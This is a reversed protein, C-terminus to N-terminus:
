RWTARTASATASSCRRSRGSGRCRRCSATGSSPQPGIWDRGDQGTTWPWAAHTIWCSRSSRATIRRRGRECSQVSCAAPSSASRSRAALGARQPASSRHAGIRLLALGLVAVALLLGAWTPVGLTLRVDGRSRARSRFYREVSTAGPPTADAGGGACGNARARRHDQALSAECRELGLTVERHLSEWRAFDQKFAETGPAAMVMTQGVPTSGAGSTGEVAQRLQEDGSAERPTRSVAQAPRRGRRPAIASEPKTGDASPARQGVQEHRLDIAPETRRNASRAEALREAPRAGERPEASSRGERDHGAASGGGARRLDLSRAIQQGADPKTASADGQQLGRCSTCKEAGEGDFARSAAATQGQEAKDGGRSSLERLRQALAERTRGAARSAQSGVGRM